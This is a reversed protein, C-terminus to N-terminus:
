SSPKKQARRRLGILTSLAIGLGVMSAPEPALIISVAVAGSGSNSFSGALGISNLLRDHFYLDTASSSFGFPAAANLWTGTHTQVSNSSSFSWGSTISTTTVTSEVHTASGAGALRRFSGATYSSPNNGWILLDDGSLGMGTFENAQSFTGSIFQEGLLVGAPSFRGRFFNRSGLTGLKTLTVFRGDPLEVAGVPSDGAVTGLTTVTLGTTPNIVRIQTTTTILINGSATPNMQLVTGGVTFSGLYEGTFHNFRHIRGQADAAFTSGTSAVSTMARVNNCQFNRFRGLYVGTEPDYRHFDGNSHGTIVMEFSAHASSAVVLLAAFSM